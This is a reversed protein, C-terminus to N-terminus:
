CISRVLLAKSHQKKLKKIVREQEIAAEERAKELAIAKLREAEEWVAHEAVRIADLKENEAKELEKEHLEQGLGSNM